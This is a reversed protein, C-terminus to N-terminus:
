LLPAKCQRSKCVGSKGGRLTVLAAAAKQLCVSTQPLGSVVVSGKRGQLRESRLSVVDSVPISGSSTFAAARHFFDNRMTAITSDFPM